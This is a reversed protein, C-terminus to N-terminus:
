VNLLISGPKVITESYVIVFSTSDAEQGHVLLWIGSNKQALVYSQYSGLCGNRSLVASELLWPLIRAFPAHTRRHWGNRSAPLMICMGM